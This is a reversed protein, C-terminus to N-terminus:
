DETEEAAVAGRPPSLPAAAATKEGRAWPRSLGALDRPVDGVGLVLVRFKDGMRGPLVLEKLAERNRISEATDVEEERSASYAEAPPPLFDLAGLALLFRTQTTLGLCRAGRAEAARSLATFDVHATLDQDGPLRLLDESPRHLHYALVTGRRRKPAYLDQAEYGYDVVVLYGKKLLGVAWTIWCPAALNIDAEQGAELAITSEAVFRELAPVSLPLLAEVFEGDRAAVHIERPGEPTGV